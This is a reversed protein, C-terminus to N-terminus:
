KQNIHSFFISPSHKRPNADSDLNNISASNMSPSTTSYPSTALTSSSSSTSNSSSTLSSNSCPISVSSMEIRKKDKNSEDEKQKESFYSKKVNIKKKHNKISRDILQIEEKKEIQCTKEDFSFNTENFQEHPQKTNCLLISELENLFKTEDEEDMCVEDSM